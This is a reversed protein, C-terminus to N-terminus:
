GNRRLLPGISVGFIVASALILMVLRDMEAFFHGLQFTPVAITRAFGAPSDMEAFFHGLQFVARARDLLGFAYERRDMEALFHGLQFREPRPPLM